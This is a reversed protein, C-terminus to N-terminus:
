SYDNKGGPNDIVPPDTVQSDNLPSTPGEKKGFQNEPQQKNNTEKNGFETSELSGTKKAIIQPLSIRYLYTDHREIDKLPEQGLAIRLESSTIANHEWKFIAHTDAKIKNVLDIEPLYLSVKRNDDIRLESIGNEALLEFIMYDRVCTAVARQFSAATNQFESVVTTATGRNSTSAEGLGVASAGLGSLVRTKWYELIPTMDVVQRKAEIVTIKVRNSTVLHGYTPMEQINTNLQSIEEAEGPDDDDGISFHLLPIAHQFVLINSSHEIQRLSAIDSLVPIVMPTGFSYGEQRHITFHIVDEPNWWKNPDTTLRYKVIKGNADRKIEMYEVPQPFWAAIPQLKKGSIDRRVRGTSSNQSRVKVLFANSYIILQRSIREFLEQTPIQSVIAIERFRKSIYRVNAPSKGVFRWEGNWIQEQYKDVVRRFLSESNMTDRVKLLNYEPGTTTGEFIQSALSSLTTFITRIPKVRRKIGDSAVQNSSSYIIPKKPM